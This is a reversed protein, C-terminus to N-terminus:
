DLSFVASITSGSKEFFLIDNNLAGIIIKLGGVTYRNKFYSNFFIGKFKSIISSKNKQVKKNIGIIPSRYGKKILKSINIYRLKDIYFNTFDVFKVSMDIKNAIQVLTIESLWSWHVPPLETDWIIERPYLSKNPTTVIIKGNKTILKKLNCLFEVPNHVHEIVETLIVVDFKGPNEQAYKFVDVCQYYDGFKSKAMQVAQNSIDIGKTNINAINLAYTLYGLGSGVELVKIDINSLENLVSSVAWYTEEISTLYGLPNKKYKIVNFQNWYRSYGPIDKQNQYILDYIYKTDEIFPTATNSDCYLCNYISFNSGDIYGPHNSEICKNLNGCIPCVSKGSSSEIEM